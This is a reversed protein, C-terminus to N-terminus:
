SPAVAVGKMKKPNQLKKPNKYKSPKPNPTQASTHFRYRFRTNEPKPTKVKLTKTDFDRKQLIQSMRRFQPKQTKPQILFDIDFDRKQPHKPKQSTGPAM